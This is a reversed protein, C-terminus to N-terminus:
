VSIRPLWPADFPKAQQYAECIARISPLVDLGTVLPQNRGSIAGVFNAVLHAAIDIRHCSIRQPRKGRCTLTFRYPDMADGDIAGREFQLHYRNQLKQYYSFEARASMGHFDLRLSARAEPGGFSDTRCEVITPDGFWWCFLDLVHSGLDLLIGPPPLNNHSRQTFYFGSATPWNFKKGEIWWADIPAGLEGSRVIREIERFVPCIRRVNTALVTGAQEAAQVMGQCDEPTVTIPKECLVHKGASFLLKSIRSHTDHPTAVVAADVKDLVQELDTAITTVGFQEAMTRLRGKNRDILWLSSCLEAHGALVPLFYTEAIAGCGVMAFRQRLVEGGQSAPV